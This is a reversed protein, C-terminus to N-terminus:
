CIPQHFFNGKGHNDTPADTVIKNGSQLHTAEIRLEGLYVTKITQKM